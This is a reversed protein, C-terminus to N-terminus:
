VRRVLVHSHGGDRYKISYGFLRLPQQRLDRIVDAEDQFFRHAGHTALLVFRHGHRLYQVSACGRRRQRYRTWKSIDTGYHRVIKADTAAPDKHAPIEGTVYFFYGRSVLNVAVHRVFEAPSRTEGDDM